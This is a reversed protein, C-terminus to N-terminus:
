LENHFYEGKQGDFLTKPLLLQALHTPQAMPLNDQHFTQSYLPKMILFYNSKVGFLKKLKILLVSRIAEVQAEPCYVYIESTNYAYKPAKFPKGNKLNKIMLLIRYFLSSSFLTLTMLYTVGHAIDISLLRM